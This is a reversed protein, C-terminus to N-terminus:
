RPGYMVILQFNILSKSTLGSVMFSRSSCLLSGSTPWPSKKENKKKTYSVLLMSFLFCFYVLLHSKMFGFCKQVAFSVVLLIFLFGVLLSFINAFWKDTLSNIDLIYLFVWVAWYCFLLCHASSIFLCKGLSRFIVLPYVFLHEVDSIM